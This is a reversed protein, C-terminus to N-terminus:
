LIHHPRVWDVPVDCAVQREEEAEAFSSSRVKKHGEVCNRVPQWHKQSIRTRLHTRFYVCGIRKVSGLAM